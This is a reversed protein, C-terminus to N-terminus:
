ASVKQATWVQGGHAPAALNRDTLLRLFDLLTEEEWDALVSRNEQLYRYLRDVLITEDEDTVRRRLEVRVDELFAAFHKKETFFYAVADEKNAGVTIPTTHVEVGMAQLRSELEGLYDFQYVGFESNYRLRDLFIGFVVVSRPDEVTQELPTTRRTWSEGRALDEGTPLDRFLMREKRAHLLSLEGEKCLYDYDNLLERISQIAYLPVGSILTLHVLSNADSSLVLTHSRPGRGPSLTPEALSVGTRLKEELAADDYQRELLSVVNFRGVNRFYEEVYGEVKEYIEQATHRGWRHYPIKIFRMIEGIQDARNATLQRYIEQVLDPTLVSEERTHRPHSYLRTKLEASEFRAKSEGAMGQLLRRLNNLEELVEVCCRSVEGWLYVLGEQREIEWDLRQRKGWNEVLTNRASRTFRWQALILIGSFIVSLIALLNLWWAEISRNAVGSYRGILYPLFSFLVPILIAMFPILFRGLQLPVMSRVGFTYRARQSVIERSLDLRERELRKFDAEIKAYEDQFQQRLERFVRISLELSGHPDADLFASVRGRIDRVTRAALDRLLGVTVSRVGDLRQRHTADSRLLQRECSECDLLQAKVRVEGVRRQFHFSEADDKWVDPDDLYSRVSEESLSLDSRRLALTAADLDGSALLTENFLESLLRSACYTTLDRRPLVWAFLGMGAVGGGPGAGVTQFTASPPAVLYYALWDAALHIADRVAMGTDGEKTEHSILLCLGDQFPTHDAGFQISHDGSGPGSHYPTGSLYHNLEKFAAFANGNLWRARDKTRDQGVNPTGQAGTGSRSSLADETFGPLLFLGNVISLREAREQELTDPVVRHLAAILYALDIFVGSTFTDTLSGLLYYTPRLTPAVDFGRSQLLTRHDARGVFNALDRLQSELTPRGFESLWDLASKREERHAHPDYSTNPIPSAAGRQPYVATRDPRPTFLDRMTPARILRLAGNTVAENLLLETQGLREIEEQDVLALSRIVPPHWGFRTLLRAYNTLCIRAGEYGLGVLITRQIVLGRPAEEAM